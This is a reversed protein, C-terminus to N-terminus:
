KRVFVPLVIWSYIYCGVCFGVVCELTSLTIILASLSLAPISYNLLHFIIVLVTMFGGLRAAFLKPAKDIPLSNIQLLAGTKRAVINVLSLGSLNFGRTFFDYALFFLIPLFGTIMYAILLSIVYFATVRPLHEPIKQNSIPCIINKM